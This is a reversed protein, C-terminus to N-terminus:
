VAREFGGWVIIAAVALFTLVCAVLYWPWWPRFVTPADLPKEQLYTDPRDFGLVAKAHSLSQVVEKRRRYDNYLLKATLATLIGSLFVMGGRAVATKPTHDILWAALALQLTMFGGIIQLDLTTLARLIEVHDQFRALLAQFRQDSTLTLVSVDPSTATTADANNGAV